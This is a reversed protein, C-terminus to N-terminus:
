YNRWGRWSEPVIPQAFARWDFPNSGNREQAPQSPAPLAYIFKRPDIDRTATLKGTNLMRGLVEVVGRPPKNYGLAYAVQRLTRRKGDLMLTHVRTEWTM